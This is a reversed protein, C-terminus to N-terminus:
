GAIAAHECLYTVLGDLTQVQAYDKEAVEVGLREKLAILVNLFDFSDLDVQERLPEAGRLAAADLEPAIGSLVDIVTTRVFDPTLANM